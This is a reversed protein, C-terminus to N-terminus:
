HMHANFAVCGRDLATVTDVNPGREPRVLIDVFLQPEITMMFLLGM